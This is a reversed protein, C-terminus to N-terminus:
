FLEGHTGTRILARIRKVMIPHTCILNYCWVFFGKVTNTSSIYEQLDVSKYLHKGVMLILMTDIGDCGSVKQALRDCSFERARSATPAIIPVMSAFVVSLFYSFSAHKLKIHALEHSIAFSISNLDKFERYAVEFLDASITIYQKRIIFASFANLVGNEQMLFVEPTKKLGIRKSLLEIREFVEPFNNETIKLAMSRYIAYVINITLPLSIITIVIMMIAKLEFPIDDYNPNEAKMSADIASTTKDIVKDFDYVFLAIIVTIILINLVVLIWYWKLESKHRCKKIDEKTLIETCTEM